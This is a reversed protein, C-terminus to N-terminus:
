LKWKTGGLGTPGAPGVTQGAEDTRAVVATDVAGVVSGDSARGDLMCDSILHM